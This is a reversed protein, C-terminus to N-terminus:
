GDSRPGILAAALAASASPQALMREAVRDIDADELQGISRADVDRAIPGRAPRPAIKQAVHGLTGAGIEVDDQRRRAVRKVAVMKMEIDSGIPQAAGTSLSM